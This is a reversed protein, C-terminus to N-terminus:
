RNSSLVEFWALWARDAALKRRLMEGIIEAPTEAQVERHPPEGDILVIYQAELTEFAKQKIQWDAELHTLPNM